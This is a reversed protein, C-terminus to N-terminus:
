RVRQLEGSEELVDMTGRILIAPPSIKATKAATMSETTRPPNQSMTARGCYMV